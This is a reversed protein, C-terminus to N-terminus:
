ADLAKWSAIRAFSGACCRAERATSDCGGELKADEREGEEEEEEEEMCLRPRPKLVFPVRKVLRAALTPPTRGDEDADEADADEAPRVGEAFADATLGGLLCDSTNVLLALRAPRGNSTPSLTRISDSPKSPTSLYKPSISPFGPIHAPTSSPPPKAPLPLFLPDTAPHTGNRTRNRPPKGMTQPPVVWIEHHTIGSYPFPSRWPFYANRSANELTGSVLVGEAIM